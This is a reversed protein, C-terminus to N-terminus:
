GLKVPRKKKLSELAGEALVLARRGDQAGVPMLTRSKLALVFASM